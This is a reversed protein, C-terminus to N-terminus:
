IQMNELGRIIENCKCCRDEANYPFVYRNCVMNQCEYNNTCLQVNKGRIIELAKDYKIKLEEYEQKYDM